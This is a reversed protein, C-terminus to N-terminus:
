EERYKLPFVEHLDKTKMTAFDFPEESDYTPNKDNHCQLCTNEDVKAMGAAYFEEVKYKRKSRFVEEHIKIYASGPGHCIECGVVALAKAKRVAKKDEPDPTTYGGEKGFGTVHCALCTEDTTFDKAVDINFKAKVEPAEGPKLADLASAHKTKAWSKHEKIHCKKCKKSGVYAHEGGSEAGGEDGLAVAVAVMAQQGALGKVMVDGAMLRVGFGLGVAACVTTLAIRKKM